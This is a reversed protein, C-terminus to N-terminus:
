HGLVLGGDINIAQGTIYSAEESALFSVLNAIDEPTGVRRLPIAAMSPGFLNEWYRVRAEEMPIGGRKAENRYFFDGLDTDIPGPCVANVNIKFPALELALTQTLGLIGFKSATYAGMRPAAVKARMSSINVIKGGQGRRVMERAAARCCLFTGTLNISITLSWAENTFDKIDALGGEIAPGVGANNVLIDIKGFRALAEKVMEEVDQTQSVDAKIALGRHGTAEIEEVLSDLGRWGEELDSGKPPILYKDVVITDAGERALRRAIARGIGRRSGAGTILAVKGGLKM